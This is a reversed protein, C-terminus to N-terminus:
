LSCYFYEFPLDDNMTCDELSRVTCIMRSAILEHATSCLLSCERPNIIYYALAVPFLLIDPLSHFANQLVFFVALFRLKKFEYKTIM